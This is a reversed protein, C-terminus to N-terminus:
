HINLAQLLAVPLAATVVIAAGAALPRFLDWPALSMPERLTLDEKDPTQGRAAAIMKAFGGPLLLATARLNVVITVLALGIAVMLSTIGLFRTAGIVPGLMRDLRLANQYVAGETDGALQLSLLTNFSLDRVGTMTFFFFGVVLLGIAALPIVARSTWLPEEIEPRPITGGSLDAAAYGFGRRQERLSGIIRVLLLAITFLLVGLGLNIAPDITRGLLGEVRLSADRALGGVEGDVAWGVFGAQVLALPTALAMLSFGLIGLKLLVGPVEPRPAEPGDDDQSAGFARRTFFPLARSQASLHWVITALGTAIGLILLGEGLFKGSGIIPDLVRDIMLYAEYAAGTTRGDFQADKLLVLNADWWLTVMFLTGMVLIGALLFKPFLRGFWPQQAPMAWAGQTGSPDFAAMMRRGTARLNRVITAIAFGIGLKLFGLGLFLWVTLTHGIVQDATQTAEFVGQDAQGDFLRSVWVVILADRGATMLFLGVAVIALGLVLFTPYRPILRDIM